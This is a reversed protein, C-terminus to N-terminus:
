GSLLPVRGRGSAPEGPNVHRMTGLPRCRWRPAYMACFPGHKRRASRRPPSGLTCRLARVKAYVVIGTGDALPLTVNQGIHQVSVDRVNCPDYKNPNKGAVRCAARPAYLIDHRM